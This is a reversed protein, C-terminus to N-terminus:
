KKRGLPSFALGKANRTTNTQQHHIRKPKIPRFFYCTKERQIVAKSCNSIIHRVTVAKTNRISPTRQNRLDTPKYNKMVDPFNEVMIEELIKKETGRRM